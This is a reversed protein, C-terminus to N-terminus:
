EFRGPYASECKELVVIARSAFEAQGTSSADADLKEVAASFESVAIAADGMAEAADSNPETAKGYILGAAVDVMEEAFEPPTIELEQIKPLLELAKNLAGIGAECGEGFYTGSGDLTPATEPVESSLDTGFGAPALEPCFSEPAAIARMQALILPEGQTQMYEDITDSDAVQDPLSVILLDRLQQQYAIQAADWGRVRADDCFAKARVFYPQWDEDSVAFNFEMGDPRPVSLSEFQLAEKYADEQASTYEVRTLEDANTEVILLPSEPSGCASLLSLAAVSLLAVLVLKVSM